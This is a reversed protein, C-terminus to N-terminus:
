SVFGKGRKVRFMEGYSVGKGSDAEQEPNLPGLGQM